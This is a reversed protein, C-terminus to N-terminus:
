RGYIEKHLWREFKQLIRGSVVLVALCALFALPKGIIKELKVYVWISGLLWILFIVLLIPHYKMARKNNEKRLLRDIELEIQTNDKEAERQSLIRSTDNQHSVETNQEKEM